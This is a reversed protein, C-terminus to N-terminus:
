VAGHKIRIDEGRHAHVGHANVGLIRPNHLLTRAFSGDLNIDPVLVRKNRQGAYPSSAIQKHMCTERDFILFEWAMVVIVVRESLLDIGACPFEEKVVPHRWGRRSRPRSQRRLTLEGTFNDKM